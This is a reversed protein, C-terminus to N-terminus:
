EDDEELTDNELEQAKKDVYDQAAQMARGSAGTVVEIGYKQFESAHAASLAHCIFVDVDIRNMLEAYEEGTIGQAPLNQTEAIEYSKTTYYNFNLCQPFCEAVELGNSAVAIRM